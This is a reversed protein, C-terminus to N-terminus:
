EVEMIQLTLTPAASPKRESDMRVQGLTAAEGNEEIPTGTLYQKM